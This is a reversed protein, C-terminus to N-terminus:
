KLLPTDPADDEDDLDDGDMEAFAPDVLVEGGDELRM